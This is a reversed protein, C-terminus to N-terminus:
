ATSPRATSLLWPAAGISLARKQEQSRAWIQVKRLQESDRESKIHDRLARQEKQMMRIGSMRLETAHVRQRSAERTVDEQMNRVETLLAGQRKRLEEGSYHKSDCYPSTVAAKELVAQRTAQTEAKLEKLRMLKEYRVPTIAMSTIGLQTPQLPGTHSGEV